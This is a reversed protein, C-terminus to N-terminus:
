QGDSFKHLPLLFIVHASMKLPSKWNQVGRTEKQEACCHKVPQVELPAEEVASSVDM